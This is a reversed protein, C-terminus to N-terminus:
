GWWSAEVRGTNKTERVRDLNVATVLTADQGDM